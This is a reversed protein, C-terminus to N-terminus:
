GSTTKPHRTLRAANVQLFSTNKWMFPLSRHAMTWFGFYTSPTINRVNRNSSELIGEPTSNLSLTDFLFTFVDSGEDMRSAYEGYLMLMLM